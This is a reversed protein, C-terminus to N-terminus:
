VGTVSSLMDHNAVSEPVTDIDSLNLFISGLELCTVGLRYKRTERDQELYGHAQLTVLLRFTTSRNLNLRRSIEALSLESQAGSFTKLLEL